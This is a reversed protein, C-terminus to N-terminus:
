ATLPEPSDGFVGDVATRTRQKSSPMLHTYVKSTFGPDSRGLYSSLAMITERADLLTSAYFHRLAHFLDM